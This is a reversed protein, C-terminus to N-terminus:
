FDESLLAMVANRDGSRAAILFKQLLRECSRKTVSFRRRAERLRARARHIKQRCAPESKRMMQAVERYDYDFVEHLLFAPREEPSLRELMAVFAVLVDDALERQAEPSPILGEVTPEPLWPDVYQGRQQKRERLRDLCLRTTITV